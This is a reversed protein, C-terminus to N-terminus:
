KLILANSNINYGVLRVQKGDVRWNFKETGSGDAFTTEYTFSIFSGSIDTGARDQSFVGTQTTSVVRGLKRHVAGLLASFDAQATVKKFADDAEMWIEDYKEADLQEHFRAIATEATGKAAFGGCAAAVVTAALLVRVVSPTFRLM